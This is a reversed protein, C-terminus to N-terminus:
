RSSSSACVSSTRCTTSSSARAHGDERLDVLLAEAPRHGRRRHAARRAPRAARTLVTELFDEREPAQTAVMQEIEAYRQPYLVAFALDELQWKVDAIGLRHALPAYIDLTEQAIRRQKSEPLSAITRMNHLRDALKILLVRIDKAMAVLM